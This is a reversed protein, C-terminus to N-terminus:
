RERGGDNGRGDNGRGGRDRDQGRQAAPTGPRESTAVGGGEVKVASLPKQDQRINDFQAKEHPPLAQGPGSQQKNGQTQRAEDIAPDEAAQEPPRWQSGQAESTPRGESQGDQGLGATEDVATQSANAIQQTNPGNAQPPQAGDQGAEQGSSQVQQADVQQADVQQGNVQQADVQQGNVQQADVQQADVQQADVQPSDVQQPDVQQGNQGPETGDQQLDNDVGTEESVYPNV